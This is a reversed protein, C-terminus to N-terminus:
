IVDNIKFNSPSIGPNLSLIDEITTSYRKSLSYLTEGKAIRHYEVGPVTGTNEVFAKQEIDDILHTPILLVFDKKLGNRISPNYKKLDEQSINLKKSIGYITEKAKVKYCYFDTNGITRVPLNMAYAEISFALVCMVMIYYAKLRKMETCKKM